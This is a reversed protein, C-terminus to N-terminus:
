ALHHALARVVVAGRAPGRGGPEGVGVSLAVAPHHGVVVRYPAAELLRAAQDLQRRRGPPGGPRGRDDALVGALDEELQAVRGVLDVVKPGPADDGPSGPAGGLGGWRCM